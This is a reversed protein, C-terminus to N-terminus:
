PPNNKERGGGVAPWLRIHPTTRPIRVSDDFGVSAGRAAGGTSNSPHSLHGPSSARQLRRSCSCSSIFYMRRVVRWSCFRWNRSDLSTRVGASGWGVTTAQSM